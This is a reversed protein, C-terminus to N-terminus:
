PQVVIPDLSIELVVEVFSESRFAPIMIPIDELRQSGFEPIRIVEARQLSVSDFMRAIGVNEFNLREQNIISELIAQIRASQLRDLPKPCNAAGNYQGVSISHKLRSLDLLRSNPLGNMASHQDVDVFFLHQFVDLAM